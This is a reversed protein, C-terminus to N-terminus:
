DRPYILNNVGFRWWEKCEDGKGLSKTTEGVPLGQGQAWGHSKSQDVSMLLYSVLLVVHAQKCPAYEQVEVIVTIVVHRLWDVSALLLFSVQLFGPGLRYIPTLGLLAWGVNAWGRSVWLYKLSFLHNNDSPVSNPATLVTGVVPAFM